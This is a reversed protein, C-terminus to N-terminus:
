ARRQRTNNDRALADALRAAEKCNGDATALSHARELIDTPVVCHGREALASLGAWDGDHVLLRAYAGTRTANDPADGVARLLLQRGLGPQGTLAMVLGRVAPDPQRGAPATDTLHRAEKLQGNDLLWLASRDIENSGTQVEAAPSSPTPTPTRLLRANDIALWAAFLAGYTQHYSFAVVAVAGAIVVSVYAGRRRRTLQDGPLLEALVTGGDLPLIPLLNLVGWGLNVFVAAQLAYDALSGPTTADTPVGYHLALGVVIGVLPGAISISLQRRRSLARPPRYRTVGGFGYLDITPQAGATRATVAHGLEHALVSVTGIVVWAVLRSATVPGSLGLFGLVIVFSLDIRVRFGFVRFALARRGGTPVPLTM